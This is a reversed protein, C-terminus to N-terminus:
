RKGKRGRKDGDQDLLYPVLVGRFQRFFGNLQMGAVQTSLYKIKVNQDEGIIHSPRTGKGFLQKDSRRM